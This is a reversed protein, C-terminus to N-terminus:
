RKRKMQILLGYAFNTKSMTVGGRSLLRRIISSVKTKKVFQKLRSIITKRCYKKQLGKFDMKHMDDFFKLREKPAKVSIYFAPNYKISKEFDVENKEIRNSILDLIAEGKNSNVLALSVGKDDDINPMINEIGWFDALTIDSLSGFEKIKCNYCSPRLSYNKLFMIMYPDSGSDLFRSINNGQIKIGFKKWGILKERFNVYEIKAKYKAELYEVYKNWLGPSPVGHCVLDVCFLKDYDKQLFLKLGKVQCPTGSFLVYKNDELDRKVLKYSDNVYAQIYKSGRVPSLLSVNDIRAFESRRFDKSMVVGYVVGNMELISLAIESFIGGSSSKARLEENKSKAAYALPNEKKSESQELFPCVHECRNCGICKNADVKPYYFGEDDMKLSICGVPCANLCAQCGCCTNKKLINIV